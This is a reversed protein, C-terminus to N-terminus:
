PNGPRCRCVDGDPLQQPVVSHRMWPQPRAALWLEVCRDPEEHLPIEQGAAAARRSRDHLFQCGSIEPAAGALDFAQRLRRQGAGRHGRHPKRGDRRFETDRKKLDAALRSLYDYQSQGEASEFRSVNEPTAVNPPKDGTEGDANQEAAYGDQSSAMQKPNKRNPLRGDLGRLYSATLVPQMKPKDFLLELESGDFIDRVTDALDTGYVTDWDSILVVPNPHGYRPPLSNPRGCPLYLSPDRRMLECGLTQTLEDDTTVTRHYRLGAVSLVQKVITNSLRNIQNEATAGFNYISFGDSNFKAAEAHSPERALLALTTSNQPGLVAFKHYGSSASALGCRLRKLSAIPTRASALVDEDVWLLLVRPQAEEAPNGAAEFQEFPIKRPLRADSCKGRVAHAEGWFALAEFGTQDTAATLTGDINDVSPFFPASGSDFYGIHKEDVPMFGRFHLASLVAYRLRRRTEAIEPYPAGSLTVVIALDDSRGHLVDDVDQLDKNGPLTAPAGGPEVDRAVADFPDQWLRADIDQGATIQHGQYETELPRTSILDQHQFAVYLASVAAIGAVVISGSWAGSSKDDAM